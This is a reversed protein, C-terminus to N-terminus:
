ILNPLSCLVLISLLLCKYCYINHNLIYFLTIVLLIVDYHRVTSCYSYKFHHLIHHNGAIHYSSRWYYLISITMLVTRPSITICNPFNRWHLYSSPYEGLILVSLFTFQPNIFTCCSSQCFCLIPTSQLVSHPSITGCYSSHIWHLVLFSMLMVQPSATACSQGCHLILLSRRM